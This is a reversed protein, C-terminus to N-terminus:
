NHASNNTASHLQSRLRHAAHLEAREKRRTRRAAKLQKECDERDASYRCIRVGGAFDYVFFTFGTRREAAM